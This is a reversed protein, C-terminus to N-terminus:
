NWFDSSSPLVIWTANAAKISTNHSVNIPEGYFFIDEIKIWISQLYRTEEQKCSM